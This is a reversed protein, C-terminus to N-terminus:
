SFASHVAAILGAVLTLGGVIDFLVGGISNRRPYGKIQYRLYPDLWATYPHNIWEGTGILFVGLGMTLLSGNSIAQVPMLLGVFMILVGLLVFM